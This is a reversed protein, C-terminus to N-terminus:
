KVPVLFEAGAGALTEISIKLYLRSTSTDIIYDALYAVRIREDNPASADGADQAKMQRIVDANAFSFYQVVASRSQLLGSTIASMFVSGFDPRNRVSGKATMFTLLYRQVVKQIGAVARSIGAEKPSMTLQRFLEPPDETQFIELDVTRNSYDYSLARSM